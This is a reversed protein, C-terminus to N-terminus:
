RQRESLVVDGLCVRTTNSRVGNAALFAVGVSEDDHQAVFDMAFPEASGSVQVRAAAAAVFPFRTHGVGILVQSPVAGDVWAKFALRYPRGASLKVPAPATAEGEPWPWGGIVREAAALTVCLAGQDLSYAAAQDPDSKPDTWRRVQWAQGERAFLPEGFLSPTPALAEGDSLPLLPTRLLPSHALLEGAPGSAHWDGTSGPEPGLPLHERLTRMLLRGSVLLGVGFAMAALLGLALRASPRGVRVLTKEPVALAEQSRALEALAGSLMRQRLAEPAHEENRRQKARTLLELAGRSLEPKSDSPKSDFPPNSM